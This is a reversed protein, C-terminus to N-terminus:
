KKAKKNQYTINYNNMLFNNNNTIKIEIKNEIAFSKHTEKIESNGKKSEFSNENEILEQFKKKIFKNTLYQDSSLSIDYRLVKEIDIDNVYDLSKMFLFNLNNIILEYDKQSRFIYSNFSNLLDFKEMIKLNVILSYFSIKNLHTLGLEINSINNKLHQALLDLKNDMCRRYLFHKFINIDILCKTKNNINSCYIEKYPKEYWNVEYELCCKM